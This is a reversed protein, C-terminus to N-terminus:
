YSVMPLRDFPEVKLSRSHGRVRIEHDHFKEVKFIESVVSSLVMTLISYGYSTVHARNFPSM